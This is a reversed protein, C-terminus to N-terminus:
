LPMGPGRLQCGKPPQIYLAPCSSSAAQLMRIAIWVGGECAVCVDLIWPYEPFAVGRACWVFMHLNGWYGERLGGQGVLFLATHRDSMANNGCESVDM